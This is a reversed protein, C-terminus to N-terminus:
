QKVPSILSAAVQRLTEETQDKVITGSVSLFGGEHPWFLAVIPYPRETGSNYLVREGQVGSITTPAGNVLGAPRPGQMVSIWQKTNNEGPMHWYQDVAESKNNRKIGDVLFGQLVMGQPINRPSVIDYGAAEEAQERDPTVVPQKANGGGNAFVVASIWIVGAMGIGFSSLAIIIRGLNIRNM